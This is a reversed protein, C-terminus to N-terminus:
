IWQFIHKYPEPFLPSPPPLHEGMFRLFYHVKMPLMRRDIGMMSAQKDELPTSRDKVEKGGKRVPEAAVYDERLPESAPQMEKRTTKEYTSGDRVHQKTKM